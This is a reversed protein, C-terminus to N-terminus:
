RDEGTRTLLELNHGNPDHFYVGRGGEHHSIEGPKEYTPDAAYTLGLEKV